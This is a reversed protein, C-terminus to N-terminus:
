VRRTSRTNKTALAPYFLSYGGRSDKRQVPTKLENALAQARENAQKIQHDKFYERQGNLDIFFYM